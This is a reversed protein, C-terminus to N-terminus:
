QRLKGSRNPNRGWENLCIPGPAIQNCATEIPSIRAHTSNARPSRASNGRERSNTEVEVSAPRAVASCFSAPDGVSDEERRHVVDERHPAHQARQLGRQHHHRLGLDPRVQEALHVAGAGAQRHDVPPDGVLRQGLIQPHPPHKRHHQRRHVRNQRLRFLHPLAEERQAGLPDRHAPIQLVIKRRPRRIRRRRHHLKISRTRGAFTHIAALVIASSRTSSSSATIAAHRLIRPTKRISTGRLGSRKSTTAPLSSAAPIATHGATAGPDPRRQARIRGADQQQIGDAFEPPQESQRVADEHPPRQRRAPSVVNQLRRQEAFGTITPGCM